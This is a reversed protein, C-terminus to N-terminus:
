HELKLKAFSIKLQICLMLFKDFQKRDNRRLCFPNPRSFVLGMKNFIRIALTSM